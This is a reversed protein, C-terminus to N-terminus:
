EGAAVVKQFTLIMDSRQTRSGMNEPAAYLSKLLALDWRTLADPPTEFPSDADFLGLISEVAVNSEEDSTTMILGRMIAHDAIQIPTLGLVAEREILVFSHEMSQYVPKQVLSKIHSRGANLRDQTLFGFPGGSKSNDTNFGTGVDSRSRRNDASREKILHWNYVPGESRKIQDIRYPRLGGFAGKQKQRITSIASRGDDVIVVHLNPNCGVPKTRVNSAEAVARMRQEIFKSTGVEFGIVSPCIPADFRAYQGRPGESITSAIYERVIEKESRDGTVVITDGSAQALATPAHFMLSASLAISLLITKDM